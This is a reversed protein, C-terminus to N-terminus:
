PKRGIAATWNIVAVLPSVNPGILPSMVLFRQGDASAAYNNRLVRSEDPNNTQFLPQAAGVVLGAGGAHVNVAMLTSDPALYFIEKGDRRWQPQNGGASSIQIKVAGNPFSRAYVQPTRSEDSVYAIWKGDPSFKPRRENFASALLATAAKREFDYMWIDQRTAGGDTTYLLYRGDPSWDMPFLRGEIIFDESGTANANMVLMRPALGQDSAFAIRRGDPSWTPLDEFGPASTLRSFAGRALDVTWLDTSGRDADGKEVALMAGDPSLVPDYYVSPDGVTGVPRGARNVWTLQSDRYKGTSFVLTGASASATPAGSAWNYDVNDDAVVPVPRGEPQFTEPNFAQAMLRSPIDRVYLLYPWAAIAASGSEFLTRSPKGDLTALQIKRTVTGATWPM